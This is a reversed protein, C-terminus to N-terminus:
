YYKLKKEEVIFLFVHFGFTLAHHWCRACLSLIAMITIRMQFHLQSKHTLIVAWGWNPLPTSSEGWGLCFVKKERKEGKERGGEREINLVFKLAKKLLLNRCKILKLSIKYLDKVQWRLSIKDWKRKLILEPNACESMIGFLGFM